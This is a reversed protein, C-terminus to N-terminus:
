PQDKKNDQKEQQAIQFDIFDMINNLQQQTLSPYKSLVAERLDSVPDSSNPADDEPISPVPPAKINEGILESVTVGLYEAIKPLNRKSPKTKKTNWQSYISNSFGLDRSMDAGTKGQHALLANIKDITDM